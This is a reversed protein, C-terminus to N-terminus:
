GPRGSLADDPKRSIEWTAQCDTCEYVAARNAPDDGIKVIIGSGCDICTIEDDRPPLADLVEALLQNTEERLAVPDLSEVHKRWDLHMRVFDGHDKEMQDSLLEISRLKASSRVLVSVSWLTMFASGVLGAITLKKM